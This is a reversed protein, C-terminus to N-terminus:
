NESALKQRRGRKGEKESILLELEPEAKQNEERQEDPKEVVVERVFARAVGGWSIQTLDALSELMKPFRTISLEYAKIQEHMARFDHHFRQSAQFLKHM